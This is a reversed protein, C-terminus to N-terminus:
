EGIHGAFLKYRALFDSSGFHVMVAGGTDNVTAKVDEPDSLDIESLQRSYRDSEPEGSDLESLMRSYLKMVAARSSLPEAETIGRIVPFSYTTQRNAPPGMVVGNADILSTRSGMLVFAVPTREAISVAIRNPLLRMVSASEVWPIQELKARREELPVFFINKGIDGGVVDMIQARSANRVGSIEVNDSSPIRFRGSYRGYWYVAVTIGLAIAGTGGLVAAMKLRSATKKAMAGRRVPVRKQTRLFRTEESDELDEIEIARASIDERAPTSKRPEEEPTFDIRERAM